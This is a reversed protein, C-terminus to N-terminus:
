KKSRGFWSKVMIYISCYIGSLLAWVFVTDFDFSFNDLTMLIAIVIPVGFLIKPNIYIKDNGLKKDQNSNLFTNNLRSLSM